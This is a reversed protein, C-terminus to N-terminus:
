CTYDCALPHFLVPSVFFQDLSPSICYCNVYTLHPGESVLVMFNTDTKWWTRTIRKLTVDEFTLNVRQETEHPFLDYVLPMMRGMSCSRHAIVRIPIMNTGSSQVVDFGGFENVNFWVFPVGANIGEYPSFCHPVNRLLYRRQHIRHYWLHTISTAVYVFNEKSRSPVYSNPQNIADIRNVIHTMPNIIRRSLM